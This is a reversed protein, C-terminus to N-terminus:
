QGTSWLTLPESCTNRGPFVDSWESLCSAVLALAGAVTSTPGVEEHITAPLGSEDLKILVSWRGGAYRTLHLYAETSADGM